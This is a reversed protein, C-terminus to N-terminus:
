NDNFQGATVCNSHYVCHIIDQNDFAGFRGYILKETKLEEIENLVGELYDEIQDAAYMLRAMLGGFRDNQVELGFAKYTSIWQKRYVRWADEVDKCLDRLQQSIGTLVIKDDMDYAKRLKIGLYVKKKAIRALIVPFDFLFAWEGAKEKHESLKEELSEYHKELDIPLTEINKDFMGLLVDQYLITKAASIPNTDDKKIMNLWTLDYFADFEAGCCARFRQKVLEDSVTDQYGHEAFLQMGLLATFVNTEGGNDGWMTAFVHEIGRAKCATLAANTTQFTTSYNVCNSGWTWIGGAFIIQDSLKKHIDLYFDYDESQNHYYDWYVLSLDKPVRDIDEQNVMMTKDYYEQNESCPRVYMDSWIMPEFGHKKVMPLVRDMHQKMIDGRRVLGNQNMYQGSGLAWAEDMGLHIKNSRLLGHWFGLMHEILDYTKENGVLLIDETDRLDKYVDWKLVQKLHALAQICPVMEIGFLDAYDDCAKLEEKTYAGRLYGFYPMGEIQYTDETYLMFLNLGMVAMIELMRKISEVKIVANRSCDIMMGNTKFKQTQSITFDGPESAHEIYLGLARFFEIKRHYCIYGRGNKRGVKIGGDCSTVCIEEGDDCLDFKLRKSLIEVGQLLQSIDGTVNLKM